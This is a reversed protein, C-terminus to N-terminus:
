TTPDPERDTPNVTTIVPVMKCVPSILTAGNANSGWCAVCAVTPLGLQSRNDLCGKVMLVFCPQMAQPPLKGTPGHKIKHFM